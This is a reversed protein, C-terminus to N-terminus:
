PEYSGFYAKRLVDAYPASLVRVREGSTATTGTAYFVSKPSPDHKVIKGYAAHIMEHLLTEGSLSKTQTNILIYPLWWIGNNTEMNEPLITSGGEKGGDTTSNDDNRKCFIVPIGLGVPLARHAMARLTGPDGPGDYAPGTFPLIRPANPDNAFKNAFVRIKMKYPYLLTDATSLYLPLVSAYNADSAAFFAVTLVNM